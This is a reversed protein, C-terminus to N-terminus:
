RVSLRPLCVLLSGADDGELESPEDFFLSEPEEVVLSEPEEFDLSELPEDLAFFDSDLL